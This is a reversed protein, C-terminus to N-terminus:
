PSKRPQQTIGRAASNSPTATGPKTTVHWRSSPISEFAHFIRLACRESFTPEAPHSNGALPETAWCGRAHAGPERCHALLKADECGAAELATALEALREFAGTTAITRALQEAPRGASELWDLDVTAPLQFPNGYVCRLVRAQVHRE